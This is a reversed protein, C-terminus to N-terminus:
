ISDSLTIYIVGGSVKAIGDFEEYGAQYVSKQVGNVDVYAFPLINNNIARVKLTSGDDAVSFSQTTFNNYWGGIYAGTNNDYVEFTFDSSGGSFYSQTLSLIMTIPPTFPTPCSFNVQNTAM